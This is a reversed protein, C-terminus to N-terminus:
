EIEGGEIVERDLAELMKTLVWRVGEVSDATVAVPYETWGVKTEDVEEEGPVGYHAEHIGYVEEVESDPHRFTRRVIRYNWKGMKVGYISITLWAHVVVACLLYGAHWRGIM